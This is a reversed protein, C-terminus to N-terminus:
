LNSANLLRANSDGHLVFARYNRYLLKRVEEPLSYQNMYRKYLTRTSKYAQYFSYGNYLLLLPYFGVHFFIPAYKEHLYFPSKYGLFAKAGSLEGIVNASKCDFAYVMRDKLLWENYGFQILTDANQGMVRTSLGHGGFYIFEPDFKALAIKFYDENAKAGFLLVSRIGKVKGLRILDNYIKYFFRAQIETPEDFAPQILLATVM